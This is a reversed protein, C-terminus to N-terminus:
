RLGASAVRKRLLAENSAIAWAAPPSRHAASPKEGLWVRASLEAPNHIDLNQYLKKTLDMVSSLRIGLEDAIARKPKGMALRVGVKVQAPTAGSERLMRAAHAIPHERLEITVAILCGQPNKAIDEPIAGAPMLWKAELTVVGYPSPVRVHPPTTPTEDAAGLLCRLVKLVQPPLREPKDVHYMYNAPENQLIRHLLFDLGATQFVLKGESTLIMQGSLVPAGAAGSLEEEDQHTDGWSDRRLAHALWPRLRELRQVDDVVFPRASRPRTLVVLACTGADDGIMADLIWCSDVPSEMERYWGSELWGRGQMHLTWGIGKARFSPMWVSMPSSAEGIYRWLRERLIETTAPNESYGRIISGDPRLLAWRAAGHPIIEHLVPTLAVMASEPKLGLCCLTKLHEVAGL